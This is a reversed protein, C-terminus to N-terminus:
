EFPHNRPVGIKHFRRWKWIMEQQSSIGNSVLQASNGDSSKPLITEVLLKSGSGNNVHKKTAVLERCIGKPIILLDQYVFANKEHRWFSVHQHFIDATSVQGSYIGWPEDWSIRM